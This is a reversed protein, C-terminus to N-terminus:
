VPDNQLLEVWNGDPDEIMTITVGPRVVVPELVIRHGAARAAEVTDALNRVWITLYRIGVAASPGGPLSADPVKDFAVFKFTTAGVQVRHMTGSGSVPMPMDMVHPLGLLECYFARTAEWSRIAIGLDVAPKNPDLELMRAGYEATGPQLWFGAEGGVSRCSQPSGVGSVDTRDAAEPSQTPPQTPSQTPAVRSSWYEQM